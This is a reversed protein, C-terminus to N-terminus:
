IGNLVINRLEQDALLRVQRLSLTKNLRAEFYAKARDDDITSKLETFKGYQDITADTPHMNILYRLLEEDCGLGEALRHIADNQANCKYETICDRLTKGSEVAMGEDVDHLFLKAYKQDEQSLYAFSKHLEKLAIEKAEADGSNLEKIYLKFRSDMYDDDITDTKIETIHVDIDFPPEPEGITKTFLEKYRQVLILYTTENILLSVTSATGDDHEFRYVLQNWFFGQLKASDLYENFQSFLKAFKKKWAIDEHNKEFDPIGVSNFHAQIEEYKVNMENLNKELKYVFIGFPRNGSYESIASDLLEKMTHPYRYYVFIGHPKDPGFLRNTRSVAQVLNKGYLVKDMYLTSIWKSDFGTLLQDVVIVINLIEDDNPRYYPQKHSLRACVDRKFSPYSSITFDKGFMTKYDELIETIGQMKYISISGNDDSPDFVATVKLNHEERQKSEAFLRYYNIAEAISTTAFIAHFKSNLSRIPWNKVIDEVVGKTYKEEQYQLKSVHSEIETMPVRRAGRDMYLLFTPRKKEDAMAEAVNSAGALHLAVQERVSRDDYILVQYPDLGLVNKDKIGHAITYRHIEGGFIDPTIEHDPTGTFGFYIANPFTAKIYRHMDGSQDRHCEDIIFVLRKSKIAALDSPRVDGDDRIRSMKQISTVILTNDTSNSKLKSILVKTDETAQVTDTENAFNRYNILSQDGLEVRDILFIVKDADRSNAILQAAKFSTMTKGSGTTHWVYGGYQEAKTWNTRAVKDSIGAAAYFQYSRLVKLVGDTDDPITYFGVMEHAMPISLLKKTFSQWERVPENNFDCWHFYFDPNFKGSPGPNAFYVADEPNMAVFIQVLSFIGTFCGNVMYKEIQTEAQTISVDSKKLEIHYLPMGNILLMLDGRRSPYISNNTKFRPQEAIQYRSRGGAIEMRDYIKLSITKGFHLKDDPNDRTIAVTKGNIFNNLGIPTRTTNVQTLIQNMEGDTLSCGNLIDTEKNNNFLISKWNEILDEETPNKLVEKEWGCNTYLYKVLTEEFLLEDSFPM